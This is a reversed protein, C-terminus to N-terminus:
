VLSEFHPSSLAAERTMRSDCKRQFCLFNLFGIETLNKRLFCNTAAASGFAIDRLTGAVVQSFKWPNCEVASEKEWLASKWRRRQSETRIFPARSCKPRVKQEKAMAIVGSQKWFTDSIKQRKSRTALSTASNCEGWRTASELRNRKAIKEESMAFVFNKDSCESRTIISSQRLLSLENDSQHVKLATNWADENCEWLATRWQQRLRRQALDCFKKAKSHRLRYLSQRQFGRCERNLSLQVKLSQRTAWFHVTNKERVTRQRCWLSLLRAVAGENNTAKAVLSTKLKWPLPCFLSAVFASRKKLPSAVIASGEWLSPRARVRPGDVASEIAIASQGIASQNCASESLATPSRFLFFSHKSRLSPWFFRAKTIKQWKLADFITEVKLIM